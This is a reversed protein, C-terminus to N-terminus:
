VGNEDKTLKLSSEMPTSIAKSNIMGYRELISQLYKQQSIFIDGSKMRNIELGLIYHLYGLDKMEFEHSLKSKVDM